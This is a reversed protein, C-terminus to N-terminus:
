RRDVNDSFDISRRHPTSVWPKTSGRLEALRQNSFVQARQSAVRSVSRARRLGTRHEVAYSVSAPDTM